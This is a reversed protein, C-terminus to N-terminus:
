TCPEIHKIVNTEWKSVADQLNIVMWEPLEAGRPGFTHEIYKRAGECLSRFSTDTMQFEFDDHKDM